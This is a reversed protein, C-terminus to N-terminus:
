NFLNNLHVLYCSVLRQKSPFSSSIEESTKIVHPEDFVSYNRFILIKIM